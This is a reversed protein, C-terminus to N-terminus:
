LRMFSNFICNDFISGSRVEELRMQEQQAASMKKSPLERKPQPTPPEPPKLLSRHKLASSDIKPLQEPKSCNNSAPDLSHSCQWNDPFDKYLYNKHYPIVRWKLCKDAFGYYFIIYVLTLTGKSTLTFISKINNIRNNIQM